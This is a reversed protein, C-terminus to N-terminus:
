WPCVKVVLILNESTKTVILSCAKTVESHTCCPGPSCTASSGALCLAPLPYLQPLVLTFGVKIWLGWTLGCAQRETPLSRTTTDGLWPSVEGQFLQPLSSMPYVGTAQQLTTGNFALPLVAAARIM